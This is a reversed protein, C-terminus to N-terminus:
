RGRTWYRRSSDATTAIPLHPSWVNQILDVCQQASTGKLRLVAKKNADTRVVLKFLRAIDADDKQLADRLRRDNSVGLVSSIQAPNAFNFGQLRMGVKLLKVRFQASQVLSWVPDLSAMFRVLRELIARFREDQSAEAQTIFSIL